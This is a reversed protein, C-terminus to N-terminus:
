DISETRTALIEMTESAKERVSRYILRNNAKMRGIWEDRIDAKDPDELFSKSFMISKVQGALLDLVGFLRVVWSLRRYKGINATPEADAATDLLSLSRM